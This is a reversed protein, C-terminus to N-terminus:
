VASTESIQGKASETHGTSISTFAKGRAGGRGRPLGIQKGNRSQGQHEGHAGHLYERKLRGEDAAGRCGRDNRRRGM